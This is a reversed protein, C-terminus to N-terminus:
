LLDILNDNSGAEVSTMISRSNARLMTAISDYVQEFYYILFVRTVLGHRLNELESQLINLFVKWTGV